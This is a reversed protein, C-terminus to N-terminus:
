KGSQDRISREVEVLERTMQYVEHTLISIAGKRRKIKGALSKRRKRLESLNSNQM